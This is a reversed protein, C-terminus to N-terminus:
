VVPAFAAGATMFRERCERHARMVMPGTAQEEPICFTSGTRSDTFMLVARGPIIESRGNYSCGAPLILNM